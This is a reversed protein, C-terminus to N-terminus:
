QRIPNGGVAYGDAETMLLAAPIGPVFGLLGCALVTRKIRWSRRYPVPKRHLRQKAGGRKKGQMGLHEFVITDAQYEVAVKVIFSATKSAIDDNVGNAYAWLNRTKKSGHHQARKIHSLKHMLCDYERPLKLFKRGLVTGDSQMVSCVCANNIGLDVAVITQKKIPTNHLDVQEEFPFALVWKKGRKTLEPSCRKRGTCHHRIYDMDSKRVQVPIWDWTNRIYVKIQFEYDGTQIYMNGRYLCPFAFGAKPYGPRQGRCKADANKWNELNSLYSSAKGLACCIASRLLYSPFKYFEHDFNYPVVPRKKTKHVLSEVYICRSQLGNIVSISDWEKLCVDILFDVADRYIRVSDKLIHNYHKLAVGYATMIKM